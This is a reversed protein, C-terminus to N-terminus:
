HVMWLPKNTPDSLLFFREMTTRTDGTKTLNMFFITLNFYKFLKSYSFSFFRWFSTNLCNLLLKLYSFSFVRWISVLLGRSLKKGDRTIFLKGHLQGAVNQCSFHFILRLILKFFHLITINVQVSASFGRFKNSKICLPWLSRM